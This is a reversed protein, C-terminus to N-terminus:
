FNFDNYLFYNLYNCLIFFIIKILAILFENDTVIMLQHTLINDVHSCVYIDFLTLMCKLSSSNLIFRLLNIDLGM